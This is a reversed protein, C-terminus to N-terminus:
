TGVDDDRCCRGQVLWYRVPDLVCDNPDESSVDEADSVKKANVSKIAMESHDTMSLSHSSNPIM